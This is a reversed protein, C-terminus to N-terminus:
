NAKDIRDNKRIRKRHDFDYAILLLAALTGLMGLGGLLTIHRPIPFAISGFEYGLPSNLAARKIALYKFFTWSFASLSVVSFYVGHIKM